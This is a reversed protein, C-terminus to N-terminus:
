TPPSTLLIQNKSHLIPFRAISDDLGTEKIMDGKIMDRKIMDGKIMDGKMERGWVM